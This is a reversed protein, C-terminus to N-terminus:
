ALVHCFCCLGEHALDTLDAWLSLNIVLATWWPAHLCFRQRADAHMEPFLTAGECSASDGTLCAASAM